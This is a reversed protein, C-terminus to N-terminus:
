LFDPSNPCIEIFDKKLNFNSLFKGVFFCQSEGLTCKLHLFTFKMAQCDEFSPWLSSAGVLAGHQPHIAHPISLLKTYTLTAGNKTKLLVTLDPDLSKKLISAWITRLRFSM